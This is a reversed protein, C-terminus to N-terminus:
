AKLTARAAKKAAAITWDERFNQYEVIASETLLFLTRSIQQRKESSEAPLHADVLSRIYQLLDPKHSRVERRMPSEHDPVEAMTNLFACGRCESRDM